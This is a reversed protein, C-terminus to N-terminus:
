ATLLEELYDVLRADPGIHRTVSQSASLEIATMLNDGPMFPVILNQAALVQVLELQHNDVHEGFNALRPAVVPVKGLALCQMVTATGAHTIIVRAQQMLEQVRAYPMLGPGHQTIREEDTRLAEVAAILRTFPQAHTGTLTLIM